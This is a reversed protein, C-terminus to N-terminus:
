RQFRPEIRIMNQVDRHPIFRKWRRFHGGDMSNKSGSDIGTMFLKVGQAADRFLFARNTRELAHGEKKLALPPRSEILAVLLMRIRWFACISSVGSAGMEGLARRETYKAHRLNKSFRPMPLLNFSWGDWSGLFSLSLYFM